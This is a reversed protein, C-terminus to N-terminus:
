GILPMSNYCTMHSKLETIILDLLQFGGKVEKIKRKRKKRKAAPTPEEFDQYDIIDEFFDQNEGQNNLNQLFNDSNIQNEGFTLNEKMDLETAEYKIEQKM